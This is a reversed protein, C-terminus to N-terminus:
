VAYGVPEPLLQNLLRQLMAAREFELAAVVPEGLEAALQAQERAQLLVAAKVHRLLSPDDSSAIVLGGPEPRIGAKLVAYLAVEAVGKV